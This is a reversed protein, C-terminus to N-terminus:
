PLPPTPHLKEQLYLTSILFTSSQISLARQSLQIELCGRFILNELFARQQRPAASRTCKCSLLLPFHNPQHLYLDFTHQRARCLVNLASLPCTRLDGSTSFGCSFIRSVAPLFLLSHTLAQDQNRPGCVMWKSLISRKLPEPCPTSFMLRHHGAVPESSLMICSFLSGKFNQVWDVYGSALSSGLHTTACRAIWECTPGLM